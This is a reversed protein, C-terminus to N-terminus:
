KSALYVRVCVCHQHHDVSVIVDIFYIIQNNIKNSPTIHQHIKYITFGDIDLKIYTNKVYRLRSIYGQRM